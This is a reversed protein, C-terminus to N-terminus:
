VLSYKFEGALDQLRMIYTRIRERVHVGCASSVDYEFRLRPSGSSSLKVQPSSQGYRVLGEQPAQFSFAGFSVLRRPIHSEPCELHSM